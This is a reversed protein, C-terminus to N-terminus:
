LSFVNEDRVGESFRKITQNITFYMTITANKDRVSVDSFPAVRVIEIM